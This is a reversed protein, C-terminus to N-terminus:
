IIEKALNVESLDIKSNDLAKLIDKIDRAPLKISEVDETTPISKQPGQANCFFTLLMGIPIIFKILSRNQLSFNM